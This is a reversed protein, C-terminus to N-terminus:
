QVLESFPIFILQEEDDGGLLHKVGGDDETQQPDMRPELDEM